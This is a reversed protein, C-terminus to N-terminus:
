LGGRAASTERVTPLGDADTVSCCISSLTRPQEYPWPMGRHLTAREDWILVDGKRWKHSYVYCPQTCFTILEDILYQSEIESMGDIKFAHSAVYLSDQENVPNTWLAPWCQDPWKTFLQSKALEESIRKRSHGYRHWVNRGRIKAKLDEPMDRWAARTTALETEGGSTTVVRAVLINLLAPIPLFTSDTHWLQNAKLNLTHLDMESTVSGDERVNSVESVKFKSRAKLDARERNELPGFLKAVRVHDEQTFNQNRFLLASSAEFAGRIEPYLHDERVSSLDCNLVEIGFNETLPISELQIM